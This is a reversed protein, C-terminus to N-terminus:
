FLLRKRLFYNFMFVIIVAVGKSIMYYIGLTDTFFWLLITNLVLGALGIGGYIIFEMFANKLKREKFVFRVCLGYNTALGLSFAIGNSVLYFVGAYETVAYLTGIDVLTAIVGVMAYGLFESVHGEAKQNLVTM